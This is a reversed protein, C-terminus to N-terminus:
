REGGVLDGATTPDYSIFRDLVARWGEVKPQIRLTQQTLQSASFQTFSTIWFQV